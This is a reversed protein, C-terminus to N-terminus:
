IYINIFTKIYICIILISWCRANRDCEMPINVREMYWQKEYVCNEYDVKISDTESKMAIVNYLWSILNPQLM